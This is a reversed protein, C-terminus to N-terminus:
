SAIRRTALFRNFETLDVKLYKAMKEAVLLSPMRKGSFIYSVHSVSVDVARALDSFSVDKLDLPHRVRAPQRKPVQRMSVEGLVVAQLSMRDLVISSENDVIAYLYLDWVYTFPPHWPCGSICGSDQLASPILLRLRSIKLLGGGWLSYGLSCGCPAALPDLWSLYAV